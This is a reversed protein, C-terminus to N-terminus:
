LIYRNARGYRAQVQLIRIHPIGRFADRVANLEPESCATRSRFTVVLERLAASPVDSIGRAFNLLPAMDNGCARVNLLYLRPAGRLLAAVGERMGGAEDGGCPAHDEHIRSCACLRLRQLRPACTAMMTGVLAPAPLDLNVDHLSSSGSMALYEHFAPGDVATCTLGLKALRPMACAFNVLARILESPWVLNPLRVNLATGVVLASSRVIAPDLAVRGTADPLNPTISLGDELTGASSFVGRMFAHLRDCFASVDYFMSEEHLEVLVGHINANQVVLAGECGQIDKFGVVRARSHELLQRLPTSDAAVRPPYGVDLHALPQLAIWELLPLLTWDWRIHLTGSLRFKPTKVFTQIHENLPCFSGGVDVEVVNPLSALSALVTGHHDVVSVRLPGRARALARVDVFFGFIRLSRLSNLHPELVGATVGRGAVLADTPVRTARRLMKCTRAIRMRDEVDLVPWGQHTANVVLAWADDM